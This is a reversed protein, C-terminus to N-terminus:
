RVKGRTFGKKAIGDGRKSSTTRVTTKAVVKGGKKFPAEGLDVRVPRSAAGVFASGARSPLTAFGGKDSAITDTALKGLKGLTSLQEYDKSRPIKPNMDVLDDKFDYSDLAVLRGEPTKEYKFRGLTNRAADGPLPSYDRKADMQRLKDTGYDKYDVTEDYSPTRGKSKEFEIYKSQRERSRAIAERMQQTEAASFDKETIPTRKGAVTEAFTRVQAPLIFSGEAGSFKRVKRTM